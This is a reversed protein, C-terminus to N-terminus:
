LTKTVTHEISSHKTASLGSTKVVMMQKMVLTTQVPMMKVEPM